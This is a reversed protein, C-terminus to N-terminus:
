EVWLLKEYPESSRCCRGFYRHKRARSLHEVQAADVIADFVEVLPSGYHSLRVEPLSEVGHEGSFGYRVGCSRNDAASDVEHGLLLLSSASSQSQRMCESIRRCRCLLSASM